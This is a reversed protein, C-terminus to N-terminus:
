MDIEWDKTYNKREMELENFTFDLRNKKNYIGYKDYVDDLMKEFTEIIENESMNEEARISYIAATDGYLITNGNRDDVFISFSKPYPQNVLKFIPVFKDEKHSATVGNGSYKDNHHSVSFNRDSMYDMFIESLKDAQKYFIKDFM